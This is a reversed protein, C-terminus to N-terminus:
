PETKLQKSITSLRENVSDVDAHLQLITEENRDCLNVRMPVASAHVLRPPTLAWACFAALASIGVAAAVKSKSFCQDSKM